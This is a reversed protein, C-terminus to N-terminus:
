FSLNTKLFEVAMDPFPSALPQNLLNRQFYVTFRYFARGQFSPLSPDPSASVTPPLVPSFSGIGTEDTAEWLVKVRASPPLYDEAPPLGDTLDDTRVRFYRRYIRWAGVPPLLGDQPDLLLIVNNGAVLSGGISFLPGGLDPQFADNRLVQPESAIFDALAQSSLTVSSGSQSDAGNGQALPFLQTPDLSGDSPSSGQFEPIVPQRLSAQGMYYWPSRVASDPGYERIVIDPFPDIIRGVPPAPNFLNKDLECLVDNWQTPDNDPQGSM